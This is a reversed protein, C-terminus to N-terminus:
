KCYEAKMVATRHRRPKLYVVIGPNEKAFNVLDSEIFERFCVFKSGFITFKRIIM